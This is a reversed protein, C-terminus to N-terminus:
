HDNFIGNEAKQLTSKLDGTSFLYGEVGAANAADVDTQQDGILFSGEVKVPWKALLDLLMGPEPKRWPHAGRYERVTGDPHFPCYRWDDIYAGDGQLTENMFHHLRQVALEDYYGRAVGAQNTVVFVYYGKDNLYKISERAGDVWVLEEPLHVYGNDVNLVGDRDLFVAKRTKQAPVSIQAASYTDPVGIDIFFGDYAVGVLGGDKQIAPLIDSELSSPMHAGQLCVKQLYYVGGNILAGGSFSGRPQIATVINGDIEITEYRDPDQVRRLSLAARAGLSQAKHVLDRWNFDFWTDGNLLLFEEDLLLLANILAGGTGMPESEVSIKIEINFRDSLSQERVYEEVLESLHGALLLVKSFGRRGAEEILLDLFPRDAVPLLPKPIRSTLEGLRTGLGGILIVCQKIVGVGKLNVRM